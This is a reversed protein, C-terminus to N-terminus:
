EGGVLSDSERAHGLSSYGFLLGGRHLSRRAGARRSRLAVGSTRQCCMRTSAAFQARDRAGVRRAKGVGRQRQMPAGNVACGACCLFLTNGCVKTDNKFKRRGCLPLLHGAPRIRPRESNSQRARSPMSARPVVGHFPSTSRRRSCGDLPREHADPLQEPTARGGADM